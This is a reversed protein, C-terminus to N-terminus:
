TVTLVSRTCVPHAPQAYATSDTRGARAPRAESGSASQLPTSAKADDSTRRRKREHPELHKRRREEEEKRRDERQLRAQEAVIDNFERSHSFIDDDSKPADQWAARKFISRKKRTPASGLADGM